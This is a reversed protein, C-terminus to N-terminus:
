VDAKTRRRWWAIGINVVVLALFLGGLLLGAAFNRDMFFSYNTVTIEGMTTTSSSSSTYDFVLDGDQMSVDDSAFVWWITIAWCGLIFASVYWHARLSRSREAGSLLESSSEYPNDSM